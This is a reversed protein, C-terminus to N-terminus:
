KPHDSSVMHGHAVLSWTNALYRDHGEEQQGRAHNESDDVPEEVEKGVADTDGQRDQGHDGADHPRPPQLASAWSDPESPPM